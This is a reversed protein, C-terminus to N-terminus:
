GCELALRTGLLCNTRTWDVWPPPWMCELITELGKGLCVCAVLWRVHKGFVTKLQIHAILFSGFAAQRRRTFRVRRRNKFSTRRKGHNRYDIVMKQLTKEMNWTPTGVVGVFRHQLM